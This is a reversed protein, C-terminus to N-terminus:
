GGHGFVLFLLGRFAVFVFLAKDYNFTNILHYHTVVEMGWVM